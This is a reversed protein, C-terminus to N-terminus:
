LEKVGPTPESVDLLHKGESVGLRLIRCTKRIM